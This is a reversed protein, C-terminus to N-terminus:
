KPPQILPEAEFAKQGEKKKKTELNIDTYIVGTTPHPTYTITSPDQYTPDTDGAPTEKKSSAPCPQSSHPTHTIPDPYTPNVDDNESAPIEELVPSAPGPSPSLFRMEQDDTQIRKKRKVLVVVLLCMGGGILIIVMGGGGVGSMVSISKWWLENESYDDGCLPCTAMVGNGLTNMCGIEGGDLLSANAISLTVTFNRTYNDIEAIALSVAIFGDPLIIDAATDGFSIYTQYGTPLVFQICTVGYVECTFLLPDTSCVGGATCRSDNFGAMSSPVGDPIDIRVSINESPQSEDGCENTATVSVIYDTEV